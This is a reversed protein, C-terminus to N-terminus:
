AHPTETPHSPPVMEIFSFHSLQPHIQRVAGFECVVGRRKSIIRQTDKMGINENETQSVLHM